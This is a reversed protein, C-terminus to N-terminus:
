NSFNREGQSIAAAPGEQRQGPAGPSGEGVWVVDRRELGLLGARKRWGPGDPEDLGSAESRVGARREQSHILELPAKGNGIEVDGTLHCIIILM